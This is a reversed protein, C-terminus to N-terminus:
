IVPPSRGSSVVPLIIGFRPVVVIRLVHVVFFFTLTFVVSVSAGAQLFLCIQCVDEAGHDDIAAHGYIGLFVTIIFVATLAFLKKQFRM